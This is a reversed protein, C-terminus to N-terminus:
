RRRLAALSALISWHKGTLAPMYPTPLPIIPVAPFRAKHVRKWNFSQSLVDTKWQPEDERVRIVAESTSTQMVCPRSWTCGVSNNSASILTGTNSFWDYFWSWPLLEWAAELAGHSNIGSMTRRTFKMLERDEMDLISSSSQVKWNVSGWRKRTYVDQRTGNILFANSHLLVNYPESAWSETGLNCRKKIYGVDRLRKLEKFRKNASEVFKCLKSVDSIMPRLGWRWSLHGKATNRIIGRGWGRVLDPLDKLEGLSAPVNVHPRAPNCKALIQWGIDQLQGMDPDPYVVSPLNASNAHYGIPFDEYIQTIAGTYSSKFTANIVPTSKTHIHISLPNVGSLNGVIDDCTRYVGVTMTSYYWNGLRWRRGTFDSMDNLYRSRPTSM